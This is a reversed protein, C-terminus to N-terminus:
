RGSHTPPFVVGGGAQAVGSLATVALVAALIFTKM